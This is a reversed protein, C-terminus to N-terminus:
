LKVIKLVLDGTGKILRHWRGEEILIEKNIIQPLEDDLQIKWNTESLSSILRAESDRHWILEIDEVGKAFYREIINKSLSIDQYIAMNKNNFLNM